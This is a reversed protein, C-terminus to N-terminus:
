MRDRIVGLWMEHSAAGGLAFLALGGWWWLPIDGKEDNFAVGWLALWLAAGAFLALVILGGSRRYPQFSFQKLYVAGVFLAAFTVFAVAGFMRPHDLFAAWFRNRTVPLPGIARALRATEAKRRASASAESPDPPEPPEPRTAVIAAKEPADDSIRTAGKRYPAEAKPPPPFFPKV